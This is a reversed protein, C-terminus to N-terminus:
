ASTAGACRACRPRPRALLIDTGDFIIEGKVPHVGEPLLGMVANASMSKGSGSEGVICLIEGPALDFDIEEVAHPRDAGKPLAIALDKIQLLSM